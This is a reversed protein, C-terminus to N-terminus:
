SAIGDPFEKRVAQFTSLNDLFLDVLDPDFHRGKEQLLTAKIQEEDWAEKYSRRSGLADFVDM